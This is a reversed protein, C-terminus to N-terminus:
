KSAPEPKFPVTPANKPLQLQWKSLHKEIDSGMSIQPQSPIHDDRKEWAAVTIKASDFAKRFDQTQNMAMAWFANGFWTIDSDAGCGFSTRDASAATIILRHNNQLPKIYGGSYCASIIIIQHKIGSEFLLKDLQKPSMQVLPLTSLQVSITHDEGGHSTVYLLLIDQEKDMTDAVGKLATSFNRMTALPQKDLQYYSNILKISRGQGDFRTALLTPLYNVENSFVKEDSFSAMAITYLDIKDARQPSLIEIQKQMLSTQNAFVSETEITPFAPALSAADLDAEGRYSEYWVRSFFQQKWPWFCILCVLFVHCIGYLVRRSQILNMAFRLLSLSFLVLCLEPLYFDIASTPLYSACLLYISTWVSTCVAIISAMSLWLVNRDIFKSWVAGSILFAFGILTYASIGIFYFEPDKGASLYDLSLFPLTCITFILIYSIFSVATVSQKPKRFFAIALGQFLLRGTQTRWIKLNM